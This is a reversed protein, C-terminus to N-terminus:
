VSCQSGLCPLNLALAAQASTIGRAYARLPEIVQTLSHLSDEQALCLIPTPNLDLNPKLMARELERGISHSAGDVIAVFHTAEDVLMPDSRRLEFCPEAGTAPQSAKRSEESARMSPYSNLVKAGREFM